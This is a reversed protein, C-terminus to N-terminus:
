RTWVTNFHIEIEDGTKITGLLAKPPEIGYDTMRLPESGKILVRGSEITLFCELDIEKSQGAVTLTGGLVAKYQRGPSQVPDLSLMRKMRFRIDKHDDTNLANYTNRDMSGKGSKLSEAVIKLDLRQLAPLEGSTDLALTGSKEEVTIEWDHLTSTGTVLLDDTGSKLSFEQAIAPSGSLLLIATSMGILRFLQTLYTYTSM